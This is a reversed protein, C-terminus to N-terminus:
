RSFLFIGEAEFNPRKRRIRKILQELLKEYYKGNITRYKQLFVFPFVGKNNWFVTALAKNASM